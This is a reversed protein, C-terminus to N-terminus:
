GEGGKIKERMLYQTCLKPMRRVIASKVKCVKRYRKRQPNSEPNIFDYDLMWKLKKVKPNQQILGSWNDKLRMKMYTWSKSPIHEERLAITQYIKKYITDDIDFGYDAPNEGEIMIGVITRMCKECQCCNNGSDSKWCVHLYINEDTHKRHYDIVFKTKEQRNLDFCDHSISTGCFRVNNDLTPDSACKQSGDSVCNSSAIYIKRIGYIWALPAAHGIIALGHKVGYWWNTGLIHYFQSNLGYEDDFERFSSKITFHSLDYESAVQKLSQEVVYWAKENNYNVDAGWITILLPREEMHKVLTTTADLGGSFFVATQNNKIARNEETYTILVNRYLPVNNYMKSYGDFLTGLCEYFDQDLIPVVLQVNAFWAIQIVSSVFPVALVSDPINEVNVPYTVEFTKGTFYQSLGESYIFDYTIHGKNKNIARLEIRDM